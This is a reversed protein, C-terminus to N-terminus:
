STPAVFQRYFVTIRIVGAGPNANCTIRVKAASAQTPGTALTTVAGSMHDLGVRTSGSTMGGASASFRAATTAEGVSFSVATTITTTVRTVVADIIAGAPLLNGTTDTTTAGTALTLSETASCELAYAGNADGMRKVCGATTNKTGGNVQVVGPADRDLGTDPATSIPNNTNPAWAFHGDSRNIVGVGATAGVGPFSISDLNSGSVLHVGNHVGGSTEWFGRDSLGLQLAISAQSGVATLITSSFTVASSFTTANAVTGGSFGSKVQVDIDQAQLLGPNLSVLFALLRFLRSRKV